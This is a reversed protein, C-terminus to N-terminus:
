PFFPTADPAFEHGAAGVDDAEEVVVPARAERALEPFGCPRLWFGVNM